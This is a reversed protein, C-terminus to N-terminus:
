YFISIKKGKVIKSKDDLNGKLVGKRKNIAKDKCPNKSPIARPIWISIFPTKNKHKVFLENPLMNVTTLTLNINIYNM